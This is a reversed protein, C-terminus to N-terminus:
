RLSFNEIEMSGFFFIFLYLLIFPTHIIDCSLDFVPVHGDYEPHAKLWRQLIITWIRSILRKRPYSTTFPQLNIQKPLRQFSRAMQKAHGMIWKQLFCIRATKARSPNSWGCTALMYRGYVLNEPPKICNYHHGLCLDYICHTTRVREPDFFWLHAQM